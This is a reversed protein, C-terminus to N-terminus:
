LKHMDVTIKDVKYYIPTWQDLIDYRLKELNMNENINDPDNNQIPVQNSFSDM